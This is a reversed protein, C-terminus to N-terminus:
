EFRRHPKNPDVHTDWDIEMKRFFNALDEGISSPAPTYTQKGRYGVRSEMNLGFHDITKQSLMKAQFSPRRNVVVVENYQNNQVCGVRM